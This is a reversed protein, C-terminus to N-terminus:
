QFSSLRNSMPVSQFIDVDTVDRAMGALVRNTWPAGPCHDVPNSETHTLVVNYFAGASKASVPNYM